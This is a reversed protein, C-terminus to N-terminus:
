ELYKFLKPNLQKFNTVYYHSIYGACKRSCCPGVSEKRKFNNIFDSVQQTSMTFTVKCNVCIVDIDKYKTQHNKTHKKNNIIELNQLSDDTIDGNIHHVDEDPSLFRNYHKMMTYRSNLVTYKSGDEFVLVVFKRNDKRTYPGYKRHKFLEMILNDTTDALEVM